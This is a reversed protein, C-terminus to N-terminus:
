PYSIEGEFVPLAPGSLSINEISNGNRKLDVELIDGHRCTVRVPPTVKNLLVVIVTCAIIGTGCALTEAEVGREYTRVRLSQAGTVGVFNINAGDPAFAEHRRLLPGLRSLDVKELDETQVVVHPVGTNIFSCIIRQDAVQVPFNLRIGSPVPMVVRAGNATISARLIGAMTEITMEKEAIKLDYALRAACRSGNGCMSAELGDPNFFRMFFSAKDSPQILILGEAGIGTHPACIQRIWARDSLPFNRLRDDALIFDNGAGHM